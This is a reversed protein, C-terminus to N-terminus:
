VQQILREAEAWDVVGAVVVLAKRDEAAVAQM